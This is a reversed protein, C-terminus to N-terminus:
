ISNSPGYFLLYLGSTFRVRCAPIGDDKNNGNIEADEPREDKQRRLRQRIKDQKEKWQAQLLALDAWRIQNGVAVFVQTDKRAITRRPGPRGPKTPKADPLPAFLESGPSPRRLWSPTASIIKPM